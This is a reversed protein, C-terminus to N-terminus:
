SLLSLALLFTLQDIYLIVEEFHMGIYLSLPFNLMENETVLMRQVENEFKICM